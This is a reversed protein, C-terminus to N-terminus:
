QKQVGAAIEKTIYVGSGALASVNVACDFKATIDKVTQIIVDWSSDYAMRLKRMDTFCRLATRGEKGSITPMKLKTGKPMTIKDGNRVPRKGEYTVPVMLRANPIQQVLLNYIVKYSLGPEEGEPKSIQGLLLIWRELDPNLVPRAEPKLRSYDPKPALMGCPIRVAESLVACEHAGNAYFCDALFNLIGKRNEGNEIKKVEFLEPSLMAMEANEAQQAAIYIYPAAVTYNGNGKDVIKTYMHPEGTRKNFVCWIEDAALIKAAMATDVAKLREKLIETEEPTNVPKKDARNRLFLRHLEALQSFTCKEMVDEPIDLGAAYATLASASVSGDSSFIEEPGVDKKENGSKLMSKLNPFLAM